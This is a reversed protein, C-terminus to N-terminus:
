FHLTAGMQLGQTTVDYRFLDQGSGTEYDCYYLRYGLQLSMWKKVRWDLVPELQGSFSSGAGFGGVDGRLRLRVKSTSQLRIEAGVVPDWWTQAREGFRALPGRIGATLDVYRAGAYPSIWSAGEYEVVPQVIWQDFSVNVGNEEAALGAFVVDTSIAWRKHRVTARGMGAANLNDWIKSFPVDVEATIGRVTTNGNMRPALLYVSLDVSWDKQSSASQGVCPLPLLALAGAVLITRKRLPLNM